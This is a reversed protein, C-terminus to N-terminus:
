EDAQARAIEGIERGAEQMPRAAEQARRMLARDRIVYRDKGLRIYLFEDGFESKLDDMSDLTSMDSMSTNDDSVIAWGLNDDSGFSYGHEHNAASVGALALVAVLSAFSALLMKPHPM